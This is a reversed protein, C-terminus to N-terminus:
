KEDAAGFVGGRVCVAAYFQRQAPTLAQGKAVLAAIGFVSNAADARLAKNHHSNAGYPEVPIPTSPTAGPYWTDYARLANGAKRDNIIACARGDPTRLKALIRSVGKGGPWNLTSDKKMQESAWEQSPYVRAGLGMELDARLHFHTSRTSNSVLARAIEAALKTLDDKFPAYEPADLNFLDAAPLLGAFSASEGIRGWRVTVTVSEAELANRWTWGGMAMTLALRRGLEDFDGAERAATIVEAHSAYFADENCSHPTAVENRVKVTGAVVLINHGPALESSEVVQLVAERKKEETTKGTANLGRLPEERLSLMQLSALPAGIREASYMLFHSPSVSRTFALLKPATSM